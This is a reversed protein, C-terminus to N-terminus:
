MALAKIPALQKSIAFESGALACAVRVHTEPTPSSALGQLRTDGQLVKAPAMELVAANPSILQVSGPPKPATVMVFDMVMSQSAVNPDIRAAPEFPMLTLPALIMTVMRLRDILPTSVPRAPMLKVLPRARRTSFTWMRPKVVPAAVPIRKAGLVALASRCTTLLVMVVLPM